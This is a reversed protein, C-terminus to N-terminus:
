GGIGMAALEAPTLTEIGLAKAEDITGDILRAMEKSDYDHSPKILAYHGKSRPRAYVNAEQMDVDGSVTVIVPNDDADLLLTGYRLMLQYHILQDSSNLIAAIKNVLLWHYANADLSRRKRAKTIKVAMMDESPQPAQELELLVMRKAGESFIHRIYGTTEM